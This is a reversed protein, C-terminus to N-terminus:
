EYDPRVWSDRSGAPISTSSTGASNPTTNFVVALYARSFDVGLAAEGISKHDPPGPLHSHREFHWGGMREVRETGHSQDDCRSNIPTGNLCCEVKHKTVSTVHRVRNHQCVKGLREAELGPHPTSRDATL